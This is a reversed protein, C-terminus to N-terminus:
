EEKEKSKNFLGALFEDVNQPTDETASDQEKIARVASEVITELGALEKELGDFVQRKLTEITHERSGEEISHIASILNSRYLDGVAHLVVTIYMQPTLVDDNMSQMMADSIIRFLKVHLDMDLRKAERLQEQSM